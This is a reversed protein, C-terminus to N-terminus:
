LVSTPWLSSVRHWVQPFLVTGMWGQTSERINMLRKKKKLYPRKMALSTEAGLHQSNEYQMNVTAMMQVVPYYELMRVCACM